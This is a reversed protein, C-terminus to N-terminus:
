GRRSKKTFPLIVVAFIISRYFFLSLIVGGLAIFTYIIITQNRTFIYEDYSYM